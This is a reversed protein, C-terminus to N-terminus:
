EPDYRALALLAQYAALLSPNNQLLLEREEENDMLQEIEHAECIELAQEPTFLPRAM